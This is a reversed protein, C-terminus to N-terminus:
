RCRQSNLCDTLMALRQAEDGRDFEDICQFQLLSNALFALNRVPEHLGIQHNEVFQAIQRETLGITRQQKM